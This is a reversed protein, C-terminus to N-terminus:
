HFRLLEGSMFSFSVCCIYLKNISLYVENKKIAAEMESNRQYARYWRMPNHNLYWEGIEQRGVHLSVALKGVARAINELKQLEEEWNLSGDALGRQYRQYEARYQQRLAKQQRRSM